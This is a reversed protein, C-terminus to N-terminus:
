AAELKRKPEPLTSKQQLAGLLGPLTVTQNELLLPSEM